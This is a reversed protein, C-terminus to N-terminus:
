YSPPLLHSTKHGFLCDVRQIALKINCWFLCKNKVKSEYASVYLNIENNIQVPLVYTNLLLQISISYKRFILCFILSTKVKWVPRIHLM